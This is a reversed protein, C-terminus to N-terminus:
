EIEIMKGRTPNFTITISSDNETSTSTTLTRHKWSPSESVSIIMRYIIQIKDREYLLFIHMFWIYVSFPHVISWMNRTNKNTGTLYSGLLISRFQYNVTPYLYLYVLEASPCTYYVRIHALRIHFTYPTYAIMLIYMSLQVACM